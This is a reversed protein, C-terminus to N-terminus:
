TRKEWREQKLAKAWVITFRQGSFLFFHHRVPFAEESALSFFAIKLSLKLLKTDTAYGPGERIAWRLTLILFFILLTQPFYSFSIVIEPFFSSLPVRAWGPSHPQSRGQKTYIGKVLM